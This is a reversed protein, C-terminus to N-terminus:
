MMLVPLLQNIGNLEIGVQNEQAKRIAYELALQFINHTFCFLTCLDHPTRLNIM